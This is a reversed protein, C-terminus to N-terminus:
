YFNGEAPYHVQFIPQEHMIKIQTISCVARFIVGHKSIHHRFRGSLAGFVKFLGNVTEHRARARGKAIYQKVTVGVEEKRRAKLDGRYGEDAEVQEWLLLMPKLGSRFITIDHCAGCPFPGNTWVVWGTQICIAVEYRLGSGNHKVSYWKRDWPKPEYISFDTGDVTTLCAGGRYGM